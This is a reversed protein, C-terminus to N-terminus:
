IILILAAPHNHLLLLHPPPVLDTSLSTTLATNAATAMHCNWGRLVREPLLVDRCSYRAVLLSPLRTTPPICLFSLGRGAAKASSVSHERRKVRLTM